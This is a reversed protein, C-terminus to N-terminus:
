ISKEFYISSLDRCSQHKHEQIKEILISDYALEIPNIFRDDYKKLDKYDIIISGKIKTREVTEVPFKFSSPLMNGLVIGEGTRSFCIVFSISTSVKKGKLTIAIWPAKPVKGNGKSFSYDFLTSDLDNHLFKVITELRKNIIISENSGTKLAPLDNFNKAFNCISKFRFSWDIEKVQNPINKIM